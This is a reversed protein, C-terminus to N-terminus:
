GGYPVQGLDRGSNKALLDPYIEPTIGLVSERLEAAVFLSGTALILDTRKAEKFAMEGASKVDNFGNVNKLGQRRFLDCLTSEPVSRPHRSSTAYVRPELQSLINVM